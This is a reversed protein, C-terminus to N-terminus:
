IRSAVYELVLFANNGNIGYCIANPIRLTKTQALEQLGLAEVEFM